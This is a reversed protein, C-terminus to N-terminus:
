SIQRLFKIGMKYMNQKNLKDQLQFNKQEVIFMIVIIIYLEVDNVQLLTPM